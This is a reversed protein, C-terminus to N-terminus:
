SVVVSVNHQGSSLSADDLCVDIILIIARRCEVCSAERVCAGGWWIGRDVNLCFKAGNTCVTHRQSYCPQTAATAHQGEVFIRWSSVKDSLIGRPDAYPSALRHLNGLFKYQM